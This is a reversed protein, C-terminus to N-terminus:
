MSMAGSVEKRKFYRKSEKKKCKTKTGNSLDSGDSDVRAASNGVSM